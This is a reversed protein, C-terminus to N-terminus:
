KDLPYMCCECRKKRGRKPVGVQWAKRHEKAKEYNPPSKFPDYYNKIKDKSGMRKKM